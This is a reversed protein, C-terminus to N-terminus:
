LRVKQLQIKLKGKNNGFLRIGSIFDRLPFTVVEEKAKM